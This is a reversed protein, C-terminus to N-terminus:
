RLINLMERGMEAKWADLIAARLVEDPEPKRFTAGPATLTLRYGNSEVRFGPATMGSLQAYYASFVESLRKAERLYVSLAERMAAEAAHVATLDLDRAMAERLAVLDAAHAEKRREAQVVPYADVAAKALDLADALTRIRAPDVTRGRAVDTAAESYAIKARDYAAALDAYSPATITASM